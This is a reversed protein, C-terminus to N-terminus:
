VPISYNLTRALEQEEIEATSDSIQGMSFPLSRRVAPVPLANSRRRNQKTDIVYCVDDFVALMELRGDLAAVFDRITGIQVDERREM